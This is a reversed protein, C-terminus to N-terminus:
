KQNNKLFFYKKEFFVEKPTEEDFTENTLEQIRNLLVLARSM